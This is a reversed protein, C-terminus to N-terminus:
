EKKEEILYRELEELIWDLRNKIEGNIRTMSYHPIKEGERQIIDRIMVRKHNEVINKVREFEERTIM